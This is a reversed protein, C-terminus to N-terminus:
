GGQSGPRAGPVSSLLAAKLVDAPKHQRAARGATGFGGMRAFRPLRHLYLSTLILAIVAMLLLALGAIKLQDFTVDRAAALSPATMVCFLVGAVSRLRQGALM